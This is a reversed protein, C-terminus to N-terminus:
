EPSGEYGNGVSERAGLGLISWEDQKLLTAM